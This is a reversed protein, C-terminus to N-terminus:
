RRMLKLHRGPQKGNALVRVPMEPANKVLYRRYDKRLPVSVEGECMLGTVRRKHPLLRKPGLKLKLLPYSYKKPRFM